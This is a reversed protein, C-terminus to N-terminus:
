QFYGPRADAKLAALEAHLSARVAAYSPSAYLNTSEKPDTVLDYLEWQGLNNILKYRNDKLAYRRQSTGNSVETFSHTRGNTAAEDALLPKLSYSNNVHSVNPVGAIDLITAYLDT